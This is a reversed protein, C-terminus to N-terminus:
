ILNQAISTLLRVGPWSRHAAEYCKVFPQMSLMFGVLAKTVEMQMEEYTVGVDHYIFAVSIGGGLKSQGLM